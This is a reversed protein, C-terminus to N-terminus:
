NKLTSLTVNINKILESIRRHQHYLEQLDTLLYISFAGFPIAVKTANLDLYELFYEIAKITSSNNYNMKSDDINTNYIKDACVLTIISSATLLLMKKFKPSDILLLKEAKYRLALLKQETDKSNTLGNKCIDEYEKDLITVQDKLKIAPKEQTPDIESNFIISSSFLSIMLLNKLTSM